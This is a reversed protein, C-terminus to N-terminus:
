CGTVVIAVDGTTGSYTAQCTSSGGADPRFTVATATTYDATFGSISEMAAGIGAAAGTPIGTGAAVAVGNVTTATTSGAALYAAKTISVASRLAGAMGNVSAERADSGLNAFKPLATAALIGLIVIVMILEILTFGQQQKPTM